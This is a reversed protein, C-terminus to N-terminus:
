LVIKWDGKQFAFLVGEHRSFITRVASQRCRDSGTMTNGYWCETIESGVTTFVLHFGNFATDLRKIDMFQQAMKDSFAAAKICSRAQIYSKDIRRENKILFKGSRVIELDGAASCGKGPTHREPNVQSGYGPRHEPKVSRGSGFGNFLEGALANGSVRRKRRRVPEVTDGQAVM